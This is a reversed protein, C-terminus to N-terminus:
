PCAASGQGATGHENQQRADRQRRQDARAEQVLKNGERARRLARIEPGDPDATESWHPAPQADTRAIAESFTSAMPARRIAEIRQPTFGARAMIETAAAGDVRPAQPEPPESIRKRRDLEDTLDKIALKAEINIDAPSPRRTRCRMWNDFARSVAWRPLARLARGFEELLEARDIDSMEPDYFAKLCIRARDLVYAEDGPSHIAQILDASSRERLSAVPTNATPSTLARVTM